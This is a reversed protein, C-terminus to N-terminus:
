RNQAGLERALTVARRSLSLATRLDRNRLDQAQQIFSRIRTLDEPNAPPRRRATEELRSRAENLNTELERHYLNREEPTIVEGLVPTAPEAAPAVPEELPTAEKAPNAEKPKEEAIKAEVPKPDAPKPEAPLKPEGSRKPPKSKRATTRQRSSKPAPPPPAPQSSVVQPPAPLESPPKAEAEVRPAEVPKPPAQAAPPAPPLPPVAPIQPARQCSGLLMLAAGCGVWRRKKM